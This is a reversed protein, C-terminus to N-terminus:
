PLGNRLQMFNTKFVAYLIKANLKSTDHVKGLKKFSITEFNSEQLNSSM